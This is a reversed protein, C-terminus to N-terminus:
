FGCQQDGLIKDGYHSLRSPLTNSVIKYSTSLFSIEHYNKLDTKDGKKYIPLIVALM